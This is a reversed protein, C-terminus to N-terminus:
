PATVTYEMSGAVVRLQNAAATTVGTVTCSYNSGSGGNTCPFWDGGSVLQAEVKTPAVSGAVDFSVESINSHTADLKYSINSITYGSITGAGDGMGTAPVTNSAAFGYASVGLILAAGFAFVTRARRAVNFAFM